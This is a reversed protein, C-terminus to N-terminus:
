KNIIEINYLEKPIYGTFGLLEYKLLASKVMALSLLRLAASQNRLYEIGADDGYVTIQDLREMIM